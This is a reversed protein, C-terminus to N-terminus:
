RKRLIAAPRPGTYPLPKAKVLPMKDAPMPKQVAQIGSLPAEAKPTGPKVAPREKFMPTFDVDEQEQPYKDKLKSLMDKFAM